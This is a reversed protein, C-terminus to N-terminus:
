CSVHSCTLEGFLISILEKDNNMAAVVMLLLGRAHHAQLRQSLALAEEVNQAGAVILKGVNSYNDKEVAVVLARELCGEEVDGATKLLSTLNKGNTEM